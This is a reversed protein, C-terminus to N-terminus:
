IQGTRVLEDLYQLKHVIKEVTGARLAPYPVLVKTWIQSWVEEVSRHERARGSKSPPPPEPFFSILSEMQRAQEQTPKLNYAGAQTLELLAQQMEFNTVSQVLLIESDNLGFM